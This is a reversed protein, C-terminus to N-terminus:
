FGHGGGKPNLYEEIGKKLRDIVNDTKEFPPKFLDDFIKDLNNKANDIMRGSNEKGIIGTILDGLSELATVLGNESNSWNEGWSSGQSHCVCIAFM